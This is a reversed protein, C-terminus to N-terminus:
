VKSDSIDIFVSFPSASVSGKPQDIALFINNM